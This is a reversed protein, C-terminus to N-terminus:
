TPYGIRSTLCLYWLNTLETETTISTFKCNTYCIDVSCALRVAAYSLGYRVPPLSDFGEVLGAVYLSPTHLVEQLFTKIQILFLDM